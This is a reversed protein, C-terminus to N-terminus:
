ENNDEVFVLKVIMGYEVGVCAPASMCADDNLEFACGHCIRGHQMQKTQRYQRGDYEFM